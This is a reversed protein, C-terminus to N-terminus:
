KGTSMHPFLYFRRGQVLASLFSAFAFSGIILEPESKKVKNTKKKKPKERERVVDREPM